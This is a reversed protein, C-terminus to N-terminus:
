YQRKGPRPQRSARIRHAAKFATLASFEYRVHGNQEYQLYDPGQNRQRWKILRDPAVGLITAADVTDVVPDDNILADPEDPELRMLRSPVSTIEPAPPTKIPDDSIASHTKLSQLPRLPNSASM